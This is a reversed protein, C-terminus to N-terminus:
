RIALWTQNTPTKAIFYPRAICVNLIRKSEADTMLGVKTSWALAAYEERVGRRLERPPRPLRSLIALDPATM